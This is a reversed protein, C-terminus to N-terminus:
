SKRDNWEQLWINLQKLHKDINDRDNRVHDIISLYIEEKRLLKNIMRNATTLEEGLEKAKLLSVEM